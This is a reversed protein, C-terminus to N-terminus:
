LSGVLILVNNPVRQKDAIGLVYHQLFLLLAKLPQPYVIDFTFYTSILDVIAGKLCDSETLVMQEVTIFYQAADTHKVMVVQPFPPLGKVEEDLDAVDQMICYSTIM